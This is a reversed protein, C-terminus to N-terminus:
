ISRWFVTFSVSFELFNLFSLVGFVYIYNLLALRHLSQLFCTLNRPTLTMTTFIMCYQPSSSSTCFSCLFFAANWTIEQDFQWNVVLVFLGTSLGSSLSWYFQWPHFYPKWCSECVYCCCRRAEDTSFLEMLWSMWVSGSLFCFSCSWILRIRVEFHPVQFGTHSSVHKSFSRFKPAMIHAAPGGDSGFENFRCDHVIFLSEWHDVQM